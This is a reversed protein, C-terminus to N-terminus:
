PLFYFVTPTSPTPRACMKMMQFSITCNKELLTSWRPTFYHVVFQFFLACSVSKPISFYKLSKYIWTSELVKQVKALARPILCFIDGVHSLLSFLSVRGYFYYFQFRVDTFLSPFRQGFAIRGSQKEPHNQRLFPDKKRKLTCRTVFILTPTRYVVSDQENALHPIAKHQKICRVPCQCDCFCIEENKM